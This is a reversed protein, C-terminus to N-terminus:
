ALSEFVTELFGARLRTGLFGLCHTSRQRRLGWAKLLAGTQNQTDMAKADEGSSLLRSITPLLITGLGIGIM